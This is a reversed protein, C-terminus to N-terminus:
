SGALILVSQANRNKAWASENSGPDVPANEGYSIMEIRDADIGAAVLYDVAAQARKEGLAQNYDVTGREDANGAVLIRIDANDARSLWAAQAGLTSRADSSLAASDFDFYVRSGVEQEFADAPNVAVTEVVADDSVGEVPETTTACAAVGAVACSAAILKIRTM